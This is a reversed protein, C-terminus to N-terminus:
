SSLQVFEGSDRWVLVPHQEFQLTDGLQIALLLDFPHQSRISKEYSAKVSEPVSWKREAILKKQELRKLYERQENERMQITACFGGPFTSYQGRQTWESWTKKYIDVLWVIIESRSMWATTQGNPYYSHWQGAKYRIQLRTAKRWISLSATECEFDTLKNDKQECM